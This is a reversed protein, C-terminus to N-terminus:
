QLETTNEESRILATNENRDRAGFKECFKALPIMLCLRKKESDSYFQPDDDEKPLDLGEIQLISIKHNLRVGENQGESFILQLVSDQAMQYLLDGANKINQVNSEQLYYVVHMLGVRKGRQRDEIVNSLAKLVETKVDDKRDLNYIQQIISEATDRAESADLFCIPDLVGWNEPDNSDFTVYHFKNILEVFYPYKVRVDPDSA